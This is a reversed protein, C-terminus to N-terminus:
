KEIYTVKMNIFALYRKKKIKSERARFFKIDVAEWLLVWAAIDVVEAWVISEFKLELFVAFGLVLVGLLALFLAIRNKIKYERENAFYQETYYENIALRYVEQETKDICDGKVQLTFQENPNISRTSSELFETVEGSIVPTETVSFKSLFDSDDKVNLTLIINGEEDRPYEKNKLSASLEKETVKM